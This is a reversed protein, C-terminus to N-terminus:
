TYAVGRRTTNFPTVVIREPEVRRARTAALKLELLRKRDRLRMVEGQFCRVETCRQTLVQRLKTARYVGTGIQGRGQEHGPQM